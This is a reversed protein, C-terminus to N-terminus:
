SASVELPSTLSPIADLSSVATFGPDVSVETPTVAELHCEQMDLVVPQAGSM